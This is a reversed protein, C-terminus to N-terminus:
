HCDFFHSNQITSNCSVSDTQRDTQWYAAQLAPFTPNSSGRRGVVILTLSNSLLSLSVLSGCNICKKNEGNKVLKRLIIEHRDDEKM